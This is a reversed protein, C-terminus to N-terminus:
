EERHWFACLAVELDACDTPYIQVVQLGILYEHKARSVDYFCWRFVFLSLTNICPEFHNKTSHSFINFFSFTVRLQMFQWSIRSKTPLPDPAPTPWLCTSLCVEHKPPFGSPRSLGAGRFITCHFFGQGSDTNWWTQLLRLQCTGKAHRIFNDVPFALLSEFDLIIASLTGETCRSPNFWLRSAWIKRCCCTTQCNIWMKVLPAPGVIWFTQSWSVLLFNPEKSPGFWESVLSTKNEICGPKM